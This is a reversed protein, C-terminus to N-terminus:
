KNRKLYEARPPYLESLTQLFNNIQTRMSNNKLEKYMLKNFSTVSRYTDRMLKVVKELDTISCAKEIVEFETDMIDDIMEKAQNTDRPYEEQINTILEEKSGKAADGKSLVSKKITSFSEDRAIIENLTNIEKQLDVVDDHIIRLKGIIKAWENRIADKDITPETILRAETWVAWDFDATNGAAVILVITGTMGAFQSFDCEMRDIRGDYRASFSCASDRLARANSQSTRTPIFQVAFRVGDSRNAGNLFGGAIVLKINTKPLTINQIEGRMTGQKGWQPHTFLVRDYYQNDELHAGTVFKVTGQNKGELGFRINASESNSWRANAAYAILDYEEAALDVSIFLISFVIFVLITKSM